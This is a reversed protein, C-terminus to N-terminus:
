CLVGTGCLLCGVVTGCVIGPVPVVLTSVYVICYLVICYMMVAGIIM